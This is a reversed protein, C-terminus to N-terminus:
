VMESLHMLQLNHVFFQGEFRSTCSIFFTIDASHKFQWFHMATHGFFPANVLLKAPLFIGNPKNTAIAPITKM